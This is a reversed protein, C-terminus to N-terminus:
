GRSREYAVRQRAIWNPDMVSDSEAYNITNGISDEVNPAEGCSACYPYDGRNQLIGQQGLSHYIDRSSKKPAKRFAFLIAVLFLIAIIVLVTVSTKNM